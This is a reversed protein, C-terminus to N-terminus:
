AGTRETGGGYLLGVVLEAPPEQGSSPPYLMAVLTAMPIDYAKAISRLLPPDAKRRGLEINSLHPRSYGTEKGLRWIQWGHGRRLSRLVKGIRVAEPDLEETLTEVNAM